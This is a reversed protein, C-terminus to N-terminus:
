NLSLIFFFLSANSGNIEANSKTPQPSSEGDSGEETDLLTGASPDLTSDIKSKPLHVDSLSPVTM